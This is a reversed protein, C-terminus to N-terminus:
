ICVGEGAKSYNNSITAQLQQLYNIIISPKTWEVIGNWQEM